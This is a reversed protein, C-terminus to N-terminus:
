TARSTLIGAFVFATGLANSLVINGIALWYREARIFNLTDFAFTSFTTFAGLFGVLAVVRLEQSIIRREEAYGYMLGFLFCGISNVALIGWPFAPSVARHVLAATGYRALAGLAGAAAIFILSTM